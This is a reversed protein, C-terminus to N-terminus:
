DTAMRIRIDQHHRISFAYIHMHICNFKKQRYLYLLREGHENFAINKADNKFRPSEDNFFYAWRWMDSVPKSFNFSPFM